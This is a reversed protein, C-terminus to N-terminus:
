EKDVGYLRGRIIRSFCELQYSTIPFPDYGYPWAYKDGLHVRLSPGDLYKMLDSESVKTLYEYFSEPIFALVQGQVVYLYHDEERLLYDPVM